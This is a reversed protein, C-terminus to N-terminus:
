RRTMFYVWIFYVIINLLAGIGLAKLINGGKAFAAVVLIIILISGGLGSNRYRV